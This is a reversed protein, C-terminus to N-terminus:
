QRSQGQTSQEALNRYAEERAIAMPVALYCGQWAGVTVPAMIAVFSGLIFVAEAWGM